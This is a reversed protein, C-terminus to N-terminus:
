NASAPRASCGGAPRADAPARGPSSGALSVPRFREFVASDPNIRLGRTTTRTEEVLDFFADGWQDKIVEGLIRDREVTPTPYSYPADYSWTSVIADQDEERLMGAAILGRVTDDVAHRVDVPKFESYSTECLFSYYRDKDPTMYPSYNSLYTVRYFPCNEEPFYM